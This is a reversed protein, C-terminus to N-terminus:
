GPGTPPTAASAPMRCIAEPVATAAIHVREHALLWRKREIGGGYGTLTGNAGIVRHCPVVIGVPNAGNAMGVARVAAPNGIRRAIEGYSCTAGCPIERLAGWVARQFPTGDAEVPLGDLAKLDGEFYAAVAATLGGPNHAPVLAPVAPPAGAAAYLRLQREMRAHGDMFGLVRLRGEEDALLALRGIPTDLEDLLLRCTRNM